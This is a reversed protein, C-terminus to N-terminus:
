EDSGDYAGPVAVASKGHDTYEIRPRALHLVFTIPENRGSRQQALISDLSEGYGGLSRFPNEIAPSWNVGVVIRRGNKGGPVWGFASEVIDPVGDESDGFLRQYKFTKLEAGSSHFCAALHEKGILGLDAPKVPRTHKRMAALLAGIGAHNVNDGSGFFEPLSLRAADVEDLVLKQKASGSLGRFECIFERVTRPRRGRDADRAIYAGMLRRFRPEDYWCPPTPDCPRWKTWAPNSAKFDVCPERSWTLRLSLHPNLWGYDSAMQLFRRRAEELKSCACVPWNVTIRTGSTVPSAGQLHDIKPEQRVQDVKFIIRHAVGRSEIVTEGNTGDLAFAMAIITKLANGQAGRSPSVYAERSSVRVTFDLIDAVTEAPIGPGNDVIIIQGDAVEIAITPATSAEEAADLANDVLEKLIVLAWHDVPHGIQKVLERQSCFDLLRSTRFTERVLTPAQHQGRVRSDTSMVKRGLKEGNARL